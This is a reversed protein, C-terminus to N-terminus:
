GEFYSFITETIPLPFDIGRYVYGLATNVRLVFNIAKANPAVEIVQYFNVAPASEWESKGDVVFEVIDDPANRVEWQLFIKNSEGEVLGVAVYVFEPELSRTNYSPEETVTPIAGGPTMMIAPTLSAMPVLVVAVDEGLEVDNEAWVIQGGSMGYRAVSLYSNDSPLGIFIQNDAKVKLGNVLFNAVQGEPVNIFVGPPMGSCATEHTASINFAQMPALYGEPIEEIPPITLEVGGYLILQVSEESETPLDARVSFVAMGWLGSDPAIPSAVLTDWEGIPLTEGIQTFDLVADNLRAEVSDSAICVTEDAQNECIELATQQLEVFEVCFDESDDEQASVSLIGVSLVVIIILGYRLPQAYRLNFM